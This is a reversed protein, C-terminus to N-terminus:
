RSAARMSPGAVSVARGDALIRDLLRDGLASRLEGMRLNTTIITRRYREHRYDCLEHLVGRAYDSLPAVGLDDIVLLPARKWDDLAESGPGFAPVRAVESCVVVLAREGRRAADLVAVGAAVTKGTGPGGSLVCWTQKGALWDRIAAVAANPEPANSADLTRGGLGSGEKASLLANAAIRSAKESAMAEAEERWLRDRLESLERYQAELAPNAARWVDLPSADTKAMIRGLLSQAFDPRGLAEMQATVAAIEKAIEHAQKM